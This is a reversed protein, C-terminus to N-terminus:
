PKAELAARAQANITILRFEAGEASSATELILELASRLRTIEADKEKLAIELYSLDQPNMREGARNAPASQSPSAETLSDGFMNRLEHPMFVQYIGHPNTSFIWATESWELQLGGPTIYKKTKDLTM